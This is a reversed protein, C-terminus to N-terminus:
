RSMIIALANGSFRASDKMNESGNDNVIKVQKGFRAAAKELRNKRKPKFALFRYADGGRQQLPRPRL